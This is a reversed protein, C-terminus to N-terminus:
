KMPRQRSGEDYGREERPRPDSLRTRGCRAWNRMLRRWSSIARGRALNWLGIGAWGPVWDTQGWDNDDDAAACKMLMWSKNAEPHGGCIRGGRILGRASRGRVRKCGTQWGRSLHGWGLHRVEVWEIRSVLTVEWRLIKKACKEIYYYYDDKLKM